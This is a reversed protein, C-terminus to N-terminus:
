ARGAFALASHEAATPRHTITEVAGPRLAAMIVVDVWHGDIFAAHTLRGEEEFGAARYSGIARANHALVTLQVRHLNLNQWAYKLALAVAAQGYGKGRDAAAGIRIGLEASRHVAHINTLALYGLIPPQSIKRIAFMVRAPSRGVEALWTQFASWDIPRFALDLNAADIDNLWLFLSASDEPMFPGISIQADHLSVASLPSLPLNPVM